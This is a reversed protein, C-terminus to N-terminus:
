GDPCTQELYKLSEKNGVYFYIKSGYRKKMERCFAILLFWYDPTLIVGVSNFSSSSQTM